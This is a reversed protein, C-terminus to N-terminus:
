YEEEEEEKDGAGCNETMRLHLPVWVRPGSVAAVQLAASLSSGTWNIFEKAELVRLPDAIREVEELATIVEEASPVVGLSRSLQALYQSTTEERAAESLAPHDNSARM